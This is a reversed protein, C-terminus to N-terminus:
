GIDFNENIRDLFEQSPSRYLVHDLQARYNNIITVGDFSVDYIKWTAGVRKLLYRVNLRRAKGATVVTDVEAFGDRSEQRTFAVKRADQSAFKDLYENIVLHKFLPIYAQRQAATIDNWHAGLASKAMQQFDFVPDIVRLLEGALKERESQSRVGQQELLQFANTVAGQIEEVPTMGATAAGGLLFAFV